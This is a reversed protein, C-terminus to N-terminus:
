ALPAGASLQGLVAGAAQHPGPRENCGQRGRRWAGHGASATTSFLFSATRPPLHGGSERAGSSLQASRLRVQYSMDELEVRAASPAEERPLPQDTTHLAFVSKSPAEHARQQKARVRRATATSFLRGSRSSRPPSARCPTPRRSLTSASASTRTWRCPCARAAPTAKCMRPWTPRQGSARGRRASGGGPCGVRGSVWPADIQGHAFAGVVFVIPKDDQLTHVFEHMAVQARWGPLTARRAPYCPDRRRLLPFM